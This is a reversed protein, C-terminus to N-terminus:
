GFKASQVSVTTDREDGLSFLFANYKQKVEPMGRQPEEGGRFKERSDKGPRVSDVNAFGLESRERSDKGPRVSDLNAFL